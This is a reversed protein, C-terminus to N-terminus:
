KIVHNLVTLYDSLLRTILFNKRVHEKGKKGMKQGLAPDTLIQIIREAYGRTDFPELLFGNEGDIIQLPIGGINSAVVPTEKWLAEAVTLGFGERISKQIVVNSIRQLANVLINSESTLLIIDGRKIFDNAKRHVREYIAWGEPDDAAM